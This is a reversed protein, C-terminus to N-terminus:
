QTKTADNQGMEGEGSVHLSPGDYSALTTKILQKIVKIGLKEIQRKRTKSTGDRDALKKLMPLYKKFLQYEAKKLKIDSNYLLNLALEAIAKTLQDTVTKLISKYLPTASHLLIKLSVIDLDSLM